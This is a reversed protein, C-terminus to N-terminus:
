HLNVMIGHWESCFQAVNVIGISILSLDRFTWFCIRSFDAEWTNKLNDTVILASWYDVRATCIFFYVWLLVEEFNDIITTSAM